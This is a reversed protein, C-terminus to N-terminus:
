ETRTNQNIKLQSPMYEIFEKESTFLPQLGTLKPSLHQKQIQLSGVVESIKRLSDDVGLSLAAGWAPIVSAHDSLIIEEDSFSLKEKLVEYLYPIYAFPGGCLFLKPAVDCGRSLTSIVQTVM